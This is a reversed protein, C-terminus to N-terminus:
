EENAEYDYGEVEITSVEALNMILQANFYGEMEMRLNYFFCRYWEDTRDALLKIALTYFLKKTELDPALAAVYRLREVTAERNPCGFAYLAQKENMSMTM